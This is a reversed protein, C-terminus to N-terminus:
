DPPECGRRGSGGRGEAGAPARRAPAPDAAQFRRPASPVSRGGSGGSITFAGPVGVGPAGLRWSEASPHQTWGRASKSFCMKNPEPLCEPARPM